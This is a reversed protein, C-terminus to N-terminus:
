ERKREKERGRENHRIWLGKDKKKAKECKLMVAWGNIQNQKIMFYLLISSKPEPSKIGRSGEGVFVGSIASIFYISGNIKCYCKKQGLITSVLGRRVYVDRYMYEVVNFVIFNTNRNLEYRGVRRCLFFMDIITNSWTVIVTTIPTYLPENEVYM